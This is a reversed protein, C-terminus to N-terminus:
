LEEQEQTMYNPTKGMLLLVLSELFALLLTFSGVAMPLQVWWLPVPLYTDSVDDFDYSEYVTFATYYAMYAVIATGVLLTFIEFIRRPKDSLRGLLITLRIHGGTHFTYALGFFITASLLWGAFDESSPIIVGIFRAVIQALILLTMAILCAGSGWASLWYIFRM